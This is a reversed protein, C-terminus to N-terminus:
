AGIGTFSGAKLFILRGELQSTKKIELTTVPKLFTLVKKNFFIQLLQDLHYPVDCKNM